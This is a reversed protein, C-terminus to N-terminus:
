SHHPNLVLVQVHQLFAAIEPREKARRPPKQNTMDRALTFEMLNGLHEIRLMKTFTMFRVLKRAPSKTNLACRLVDEPEIDRGERAVAAHAQALAQLLDNSPTLRSASPKAGREARLIWNALKLVVVALLSYYTLGQGLVIGGPGDLYGALLHGTHVTRRLPPTDLAAGYLASEMRPSLGPVPLETGAPASQHAAVVAYASWQLPTEQFRRPGPTDWARAGSRQLERVAERLDLGAVAARLVPDDNGASDRVPFLTTVITKSGGCLMAPATTLWEGAASAALNSSDCAVLLVQAPLVIGDAAMAVVDSPTLLRPQGSTETEALVLGGQTTLDATAPLAHCAFLATSAPELGAIAARVATLTATRSTWHRGGLVEVDPPLTEAQRRAAPLAALAQGQWTDAVALRLPFPGSPQQRQLLSTALSAAPALVWDAAHVLRMTREDDPDSLVLLSWPVSALGVSPVIALPLPESPTKLRARLERVLADPLLLNALRASSRREAPPDSLLPSSAMRWDMAAAQEGDFLVPLGEQLARLATHLQSTPSFDIRGGTVPGSPPVLSWYLLSRAQWYSLWWAGAGATAEAATELDIPAPRSPDWYRDVQARNRVRIVPPVALAVQGDRAHASELHPLTQIRGFEILEAQLRANGSQAALGLALALAEHLHASWAARDRPSRLTSRNRDLERLARLLYGLAKELRGEPSDEGTEDTAKLPRMEHRALTVLLDAVIGWQGQIALIDASNDMEGSSDQFDKSPVEAQIRFITLEARIHETFLRGIPGALFRILRSQDNGGNLNFLYQSWWNTMLAMQAHEAQVLAEKFSGQAELAEAILRYARTRELHWGRRGTLLLVGSAAQASRAHEGAGALATALSLGYCVRESATLAQEDGLIGDLLQVAADDRNLAILIEARLWTLSRAYAPTPRVARNIAESADQYRGDDIAAFALRACIEPRGGADPGGVSLAALLLRQARYTDGGRIARDARSLRWACGLGDQYRPKPLPYHRRPRPTVAPAILGVVALAFLALVAADLGRVLLLVGDWLVAPLLWGKSAAFAPIILLAVYGWDASHRFFYGIATGIIVARVIKIRRLYYVPVVMLLVPWWHRAYVVVLVVLWPAAASALERIFLGYAARDLPTDHGARVKRHFAPLGAWLNALHPLFAMPIATWWPIMESAGAAIALTLVLLDPGCSPEFTFSLLLILTALAAGGPRLFMWALAVLPLCGAARVV